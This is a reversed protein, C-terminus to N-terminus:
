RRLKILQLNLSRDLEKHLRRKALKLIAMSTEPRRIITSLGPASERGGLPRARKSKQRRVVVNQGGHGRVIFIDRRSKPQGRKVEVKLKARSKISKGKNNRPEKNGKVFKILPIPRGKIFLIARMKHIDTGFAKREKLGGKTDKKKLAYTQLIRKQTIGRMKTLTKNLAQRTANGLQRENLRRFKLLIEGLDDDNISIKFSM